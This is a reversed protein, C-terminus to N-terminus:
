AGTTVFQEKKRAVSTSCGDLTGRAALNEGEKASSNLKLL